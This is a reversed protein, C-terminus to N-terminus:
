AVHQLSDNVEAKIHRCHEIEGRVMQVAMAVHRSVGRSLPLHERTLIFCAQRDDANIIRLRPFHRIPQSGL